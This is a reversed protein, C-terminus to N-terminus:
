SLTTIWGFGMGTSSGLGSSWVTACDHSPGTLIFPMMVGPLAVPRGHVVLSASGVPRSIPMWPDPIVRLAFPRGFRYAMTRNLATEWETDLTLLAPRRGHRVTALVRIPTVPQIFLPITWDPQPTMALQGLPWRLGAEAASDQLIEPTLRSLGAIWTSDASGFHLATMRRTRNATNWEHVIGWGWRAPQNFDRQAFGARTLAYELINKLVSHNPAPIPTSWTLQYRVLHISTTSSSLSQTSVSTTM